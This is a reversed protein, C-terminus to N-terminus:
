VSFQGSGTLQRLMMFLISLPCIGHPHETWPAFTPDVHEARTPPLFSLETLPRNWRIHTSCPIRVLTTSLTHCLGLYDVINRNKMNVPVRLKARNVAYGVKECRIQVSLWKKGRLGASTATSFFGDEFMFDYFIAYLSSWVVAACEMWSKYYFVGLIFWKWVISSAYHILNVLPCIGHLHESGFAFTADM